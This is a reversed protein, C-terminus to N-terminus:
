SVATLSESYQPDGVLDYTLSVVKIGPLIRPDDREVLEGGMYINSKLRKLRALYEQSTIM